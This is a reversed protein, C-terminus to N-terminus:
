NGLQSETEEEDDFGWEVITDSDTPLFTGAVFYGSICMILGIVNMAGGIFIYLQSDGGQNFGIDILGAGDIKDFTITYNGFPIDLTTSGEFFMQDRTELLNDEDLTMNVFYTDLTSNEQLVLGIEVTSTNGLRISVSVELEPHYGTRDWIDFTRQQNETVAFNIYNYPASLVVAGGILIIAAGGFYLLAKKRFWISGM